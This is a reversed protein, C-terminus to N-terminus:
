QSGSLAICDLKGKSITGPVLRYGRFKVAVDITEPEAFFLLDPSQDALLDEILTRMKDVNLTGPINQYLVKLQLYNGKYLRMFWNIDLVVGINLLVVVRKWLMNEYFKIERYISNVLSLM